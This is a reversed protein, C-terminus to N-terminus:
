SHVTSLAGRMKLIFFFESQMGTNRTKEDDCMFKCNFTNDDNLIVSNM